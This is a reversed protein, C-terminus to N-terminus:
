PVVLGDEVVLHRMRMTVLGNMDRMRPPLFAQARQRYMEQQAESLTALVAAAREEQAREAELQQQEALQQQRREEQHQTQQGQQAQVALAADTYGLVAGFHQMQFDTRAAERVAYTVIARAREDGHERLLAEAQQLEKASPRRTPKTKLGERFYQV